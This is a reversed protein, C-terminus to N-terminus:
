ELRISLEAKGTETQDATFTRENYRNLDFVLRAKV